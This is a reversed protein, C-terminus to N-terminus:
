TLQQLGQPTITRRKNPLKELLGAECLKNLTNMVTSNRDGTLQIFDTVRLEGESAALRLYREERESLPLKPIAQPIAAPQPAPQPKAVLTITVVAGSNLNDEIYISGDSVELWERVLPLGSGVGRIYRKMPEIASTFGPKQAKEKDTIGPGQDAFRITNGSDLISVVVDRFQAHIFNESVERVATYPIKGGVRKAQEDITSALNEIFDTTPAPEITFIRPASKMDDYLAIRAPTDVHSYDFSTANESTETQTEAM